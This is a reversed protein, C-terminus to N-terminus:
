QGLGKSEGELGFAHVFPAPNFYERFLVIKGDVVHFLGGYTQEYLRGTPIIDVHGTFTAFVWEPDQMPYFRLNETFEADGSVAPWAQYHALIGNKGRVDKPFGEPAFPMEQVANDAWVNAFANMDKSELSELFARVAGAAADRVLVAGPREAARAPAIALADRTGDEGRLNMTHGVIKWDRGDRRLEYRYDGRAQWFLEGIFHDATFGATAVASDGDISVHIGSLSHRTLDFGPLFGAWSRMLDASTVTNAPEGTLSSYDVMIEDAYLSALADFRGLDALTAVGEVVTTVAAVDQQEHFSERFHEAVADAATTVPVPQDYFEFQTIDDLWLVRAHAGMREAFATIGQPIVAAQSHVALTPKRLTKGVRVADYTLWPEWSAVNFQNDYEDILGRDTETYYPANYMLASENTTSAAEIIVAEDSATAERGAAILGAVGERGGYVSEAIEYNHLWPAILGLARINPSRQTADSMYGASACVGLGGIRGADVEPRSALFAAAAIIDQTKREPDELFRPSGESGGWGRFDFTLAAFGRGAMEAAYTAPMQEKVTTWAGTVVLGPLQRNGDYNEPLYLHGVLAADGSRFSVDQRSVQDPAEQAGNALSAALLTILTTGSKM